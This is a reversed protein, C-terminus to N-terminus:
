NAGDAALIERVADSQLVRDAREPALGGTFARITAVARTHAEGAGDDDGTAQLAAGLAWWARWRTPPHMLQEAADAAARLETVGREAEHLGVLARGLVVRSALEYKRRSVEESEDIAEEATAAAAELDGKALAIEAKVTLLRGVMLWQHWGKAQQARDWLGPWRGEARGPEGETLDDFMHDIGAQIEAIGFGARAGLEAGEENRARAEDVDFLDRYVASSM